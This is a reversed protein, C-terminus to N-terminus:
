TSRIRPKWWIFVSSRSVECFFSTHPPMKLNHKPADVEEHSLILFPPLPPASLLISLFVYNHLGKENKWSPQCYLCSVGSEKKKSANSIPGDNERMSWTEKCWRVLRACNWINIPWVCHLCHLPFSFCAKIYIHETVSGTMSTISYLVYM